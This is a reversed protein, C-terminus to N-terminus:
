VSRCLGCARHDLGPPQCAPVAGDHVFRTVQGGSSVFLRGKPDYVLQAGASSTVLRNEVDHTYSTM